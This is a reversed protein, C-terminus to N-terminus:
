KNMLAALAVVGGRPLVRPTFAIVKNLAGVVVLRRGEM